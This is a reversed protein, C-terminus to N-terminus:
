CTAGTLESLLNIDVDNIKKTALELLSVLGLSRSVVRPLLTTQNYNDINAIMPLQKPGDLVIMVCM